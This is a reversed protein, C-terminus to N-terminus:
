ICRFKCCQSFFTSVDCIEHFPNIGIVALGNFRGNHGYLFMVWILSYEYLNNLLPTGQRGSAAEGSIDIGLLNFFSLRLHVQLGDL